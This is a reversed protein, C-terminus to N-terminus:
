GDDIEGDSVDADARAVAIGRDDVHSRGVRGVRLVDLGCLERVDPVRLVLDHDLGRPRSGPQAAVAAPRDLDGDLKRGARVHVAGRVRRVEVAVPREPRAADLGAEPPDAELVGAEHHHLAAGAVDADVERGVV